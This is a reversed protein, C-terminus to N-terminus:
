NVNQLIKILDQNMNQYIVGAPESKLKRALESKAEDPYEKALKNKEEFQPTFVLVFMIVFIIVNFVAMIIIKYPTAIRDIARYIGATKFDLKMM